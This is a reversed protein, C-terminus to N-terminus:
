RSIARLPRQTNSALEGARLAAQSKIVWAKQRSSRMSSLRISEPLRGSGSLVDLWVLDRSSTPCENLFYERSSEQGKPGWVRSAWAM